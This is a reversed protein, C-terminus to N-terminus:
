RRGCFAKSAIASSTSAATSRITANSADNSHAFRLPLRQQRPVRRLSAPRSEHELDQTAINGASQRASPRTRKPRGLHIDRHPGALIVLDIHPDLALRVCALACLVDIGKERGRGEPIKKGNLDIIPRGDAGRQVKYSLDRLHVEVGDARWQAAQQSCRSHQASDYDAHPLGRYALVRVVEAHPHGERQRSNRRHTAARAFQM